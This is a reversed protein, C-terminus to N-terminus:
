IAEYDAGKLEFVNIGRYNFQVKKPFCECEREAIETEVGLVEALKEIGKYVHLGRCYHTECFSIGNDKCADIVWDRAQEYDNAAQEYDNAADVLRDFIQKM